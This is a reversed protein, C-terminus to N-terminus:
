ADVKPISFVFRAGDTYHTDLWLNGGLCHAMMRSITLSRGLGQSKEDPQILRNFIKEEMGHPVGPGNDAVYFAIQGPYEWLSSGFVIEGEETYRCANTLLTILIQQVRMGDTMYLADEALGPQRIIKVGPRLQSEVTIIAQRAMENLNTAALTISYRGNELQDIGLLDNVMMVLMQSNNLINNLYEEKEDRTLQGSPLCLLQSFGMIADLPTRVEQGMNQIFASRVRNANEAQVRSRKLHTLSRGMFHAIFLVLGLLLIFALWMFSKVYKEWLSQPLNFVIADEPILHTDMGFYEMARYNLTPFGSQFVIFPLESPQIGYDLVDQLSQTVARAYDVEPCHCYGVLNPHKQFDNGFLTYTPALNEIVSLANHRTNRNAYYSDHILWSGFLVATTANDSEDLIDIMDDTNVDMSLLARYNLEPHFQRLYVELQWQREKSLYNEGGLFIITELEPQVHLIMEVTRRILSPADILTLNLGSQQLQSVPYRHAAPDSRGGLGYSLDCYYDQEGLLLLPINEWHHDIQPALAFASGGLLVVMRPPVPIRNLTSDLDHLLALTDAYGVFGFELESITLDPRSKELSEIPKMMLQQWESTKTHSSLILVDAAKEQAALMLPAFLLVLCPILRRLM